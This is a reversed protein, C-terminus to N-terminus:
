EGRFGGLIEMRKLDSGWREEDGSKKGVRKGIM